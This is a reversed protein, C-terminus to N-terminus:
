DKDFDLMLWKNVEYVRSDPQEEAFAGCSGCRLVSKTHIYDVACECDWFRSDLEIENKM